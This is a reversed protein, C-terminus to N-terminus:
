RQDAELMAEENLATAIASGSKHGRRAASRPFSHRLRPRPYHRRDTGAMLQPFHMPATSLASESQSPTRAARAFRVRHCTAIVRRLASVSGRGARALVVGGGGSRPTEVIGGRALRQMIKTLHNRSAGFEQALEATSFTCEPASAMRMLARLGYDTLATLRM